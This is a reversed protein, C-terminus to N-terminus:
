SRKALAILTVGFVAMVIGWWLNVNVSLSRVYVEHNGATAVGYGAIIVGLVSFLGGIPLRVDM